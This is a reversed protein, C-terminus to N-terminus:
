LDDISRLMEEEQETNLLGLMVRTRLFVAYTDVVDNACYTAIEAIKGETYMQHIMKGNIDGKGARKLKKSLCNLQISKIAGYNTIWESIDIHEGSFRNRPGFKDWYRPPIQNGYKFSALELIPLDFGRGNYTVLIQPAKSYTKWWETIMAPIDQYTASQLVTRNLPYCEPALELVAIVIPIQYQVPMFGREDEIQKALVQDADPDAASEVDIILYNNM